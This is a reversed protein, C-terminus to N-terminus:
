RVTVIMSPSANTIANGQSDRVALNPVSVACAGKAIAQFTLSVLTGSGTVGPAGPFRNMNVTAQGSDNMINKTFVVQQGDLSLLNGRAVDTLRLVKPDFQIQMPAAFVDTGNALMLTVTVASSIPTDIAPPLFTIAPPGGPAPPPPAGTNAGPQPGPQGPPNVATPDPVPGPMPLGPAIPAPTNAPSTPANGPANAPAVAPKASDDTKRPAYNLKVVTANGVAIGKLNQPTIEPRRVVHPILAIMLENHNRDVETGRFLRGLLPINAVGPVGTKVNKSDEEILGGLLNVEGERLRIDQIVKRQGIVPQDIGGLTVTKVVDSVEIEVHMSVDGNDHVHPTMDVNVGVDIYTFQTNVLPNIGVGVSGVGPQFSGSATPERSGIKLSAKQNDVSRLQPNQLVRSSNDTLV